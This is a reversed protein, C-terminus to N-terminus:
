ETYTIDGLKSHTDVGISIISYQLSMSFSFQFLSTNVYCYRWLDVTKSRQTSMHSCSSHKNPQNDMMIISTDYTWTHCEMVSIEIESSNSGNLNFHFIPKAWALSVSQEQGWSSLMCPHDSNKLIKINRRLLDPWFVIQSVSKHEDSENLFSNNTFLIPRHKQIGATRDILQLLGWFHDESIRHM